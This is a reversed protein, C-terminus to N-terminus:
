SKGGRDSGHKRVEECKRILVKKKSADMLWRNVVETLEVLVRERHQAEEKGEYVPEQITSAVITSFTGWLSM